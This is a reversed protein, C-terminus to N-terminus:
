TFEHVTFSHLYIHLDRPCMRIKPRSGALRDKVAVLECGPGPFVGGRCGLLPVLRANEGRQVAEFPSGCGAAVVKMAGDDEAVVRVAHVLDNGRIGFFRETDRLAFV